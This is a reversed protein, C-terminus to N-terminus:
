FVHGDVLAEDVAKVAVTALRALLEEDTPPIDEIAFRDVGVVKAGLSQVVNRMVADVAEVYDDLNGLEGVFWAAGKGQFYPESDYGTSLPGLAAPRVAELFRWVAVHLPFFFGWHEVPVAALERRILTGLLENENM